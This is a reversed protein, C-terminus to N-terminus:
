KELEKKLSLEAFPHLVIGSKEYVTKAVTLSPNYSHLKYSSVMSVSVGLFDAIEYSSNEEAMSNVLTEITVLKM